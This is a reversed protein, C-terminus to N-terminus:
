SQGAYMTWLSAVQALKSDDPVAKFAKQAQEKQKLKLYARGLLLQADDKNLRATFHGKTIASQAAEVARQYQGISMYARALQLDADGKTDQKAKQDLQAISAQTTQAQKQFSDFLRVHRTEKTSNDLVKNAFGKQMVAVAEGPTGNDNAMEALEVYNDPKKLVDLELMLRFLNLKAPDELDKNAMPVLLGEWNKKDPYYRVLQQRTEEMGADDNLDHQCNLKLNLMAESPPKGAKRTADIAVNTNRVAGKCDKNGWYQAQAVLWSMDADGANVKLYRNGYDAAKAYNKAQMYSQAIIKQRAPVQDAPTRGSNLNEEFAKASGVNDGKRQLVYGLMENIAYQEHPQKTPVADAQKIKTLAVDWQKKQMATQAEKLPTGVAKSFEEAHAVSPLSAAVAAVAFATFSLILAPFFKQM